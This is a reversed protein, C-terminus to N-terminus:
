QAPAAAARRPLGGVHCGGAPGVAGGHCLRKRRRAVAPAGTCLLGKPGAHSAHPPGGCRMPRRRSASRLKPPRPGTDVDNYCVSGLVPHWCWVSRLVNISRRRLGRCQGSACRAAGLSRACRRRASPGRRALCSRRRSAGPSRCGWQAAACDGTSVSGRAQTRMHLPREELLAPMCHRWARTSWTSSSTINETKPLTNSSQSNRVIRLGRASLRRAYARADVRPRAPARARRTPATTGGKMSRENRQVNPIPARRARCQRATRGKRQRTVRKCTSPDSERQERTAKRASDLTQVAPRWGRLLKVGVGHGLLPTVVWKPLTISNFCECTHSGLM